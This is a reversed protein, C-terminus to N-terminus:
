QGSLAIFSDIDHKTLTADPDYFKCQIAILRGATDRAVLDIGIDAGTRGSWDMWRWVDTFQQRFTRDTTFAHLMLREFRDGKDHEDKAAARIAALVTEVPTM